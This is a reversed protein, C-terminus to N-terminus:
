TNKFWALLRREFENPSTSLAGCHDAEPVEWLVTNPAHAHIRQPTVYPSTATSQAM